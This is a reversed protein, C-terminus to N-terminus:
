GKDRIGKVERAIVDAAKEAILYVSSAIFLGPVRPFISADVVRLGQTGHVKFDSSLVGGRARAGIPCTCSAHHGWANNRVFETLKEDSEFGPGPYEERDVVTGLLPETLRRVLKVGEVLGKLDNSGADTGETFYHFDICPTDRPNDSRLMVRGGTNHTHGKLVVWTLSQHPPRLRTTYGPEYGRFDCLTAFCFLDPSPEALTSRATVAVLSGNSTYVGEKNSSWRGYQPDGKGFVAGELVEWTKVMRNVIGIEYRDQLNRGVGDLPVRVAIGKETLHEAPGIGSLMLLQPTNFAGGALIVERSAMATRREGGSGTARPDAAYLHRGKEYEVGIARTGDFIVRTALADMEITLRDPYKERVELLRERTGMRRHNRTTLPTYRAGVESGEVSRWDNPDELSAFRAASPFGFEELRAGIGGLIARRIQPDRIADTALSKETHLWGGFGHRSPNIGLKALFRRTRRHQCNELREFYTRMHEARWSRDGTLDAIANWDANHPYVFIMANHATCGGLAGSRPYWIGDVPKGGHSAVYKDDKQQQKADSFHRVFFDWKIADNETALAHFAPVSYDDPYTNGGPHLPNGGSIEQPDGGAELVLVSFGSEVLRAAVTGGGAGSGVVVYDARRSSPSAPQGGSGSEASRSRSAGTPASAPAAEASATRLRLAQAIGAAYKVFDRRNM